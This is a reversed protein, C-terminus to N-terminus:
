ASSSTEAGVTLRSHTKPSARTAKISPLMRSKSDRGTFIKLDYAVESFLQDIDSSSNFTASRQDPASSVAFEDNELEKQVNKFNLSLANM